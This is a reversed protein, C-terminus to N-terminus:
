GDVEVISIGYEVIIDELSHNLLELERLIRYSPDSRFAVVIQGIQKLLDVSKAVELEMDRSLRAIHETARDNFPHKVNYPKHKAM